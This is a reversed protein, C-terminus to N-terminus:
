DGSPTAFKATIEASSRATLERAVEVITAIAIAIIAGAQLYVGSQLSHGPAVTSTTSVIGAGGMLLAIGALGLIVFSTIRNESLKGKRPRMVLILGLVLLALGIRIYEPHMGTLIVTSGQDDSFSEWPLLSGFVLLMLLVSTLFGLFTDSSGHAGREGIKLGKPTAWSELRGFMDEFYFALLTAPLAGALLIHDKNLAHGRLILDGLGGGGIFAALTASAVVLVASTRIGAMIVATAIPIQVRTLVQIDNMGMGRAAEVTAKDVQNIGVNTNILIPLSGVFVLALITPPTGIGLFPLALALVALSPITRGLNGLTLVMRELWKIRTTIIGLLLGVVLSIGLAIFTLSLHQGLATTFELSREIVYNATELLM